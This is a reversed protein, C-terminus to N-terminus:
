NARQNARLLGKLEGIDTLINRLLQATSAEALDARAQNRSVRDDLKVIATENAAIRHQATFYTGVGTFMAVAFMTIFISWDRPTLTVKLMKDATSSEPM